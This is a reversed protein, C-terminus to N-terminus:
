RGQQWEFADVPLSNHCAQFSGPLWAAANQNSVAAAVLSGGAATQGLVFANHRSFLVCSLLLTVTAPALWGLRFPVPDLAAASASGGNAVSSWAEEHLGFLRAKLGRSPRRPRWSRLRTELETMNSM